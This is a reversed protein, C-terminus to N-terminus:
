RCRPGPSRLAKSPSCTASHPRDSSGPSSEEVVSGPERDDIALAALAWGQKKGTIRAGVQPDAVRRSFFLNVPTEFFSANEIFFPRKEPFFVEFRQNITVQPEDSEVQSFDPNFTLDLTFADKLVMKGDLGARVDTERVYSPREPDLFRAGTLAGYPIFQINRGPSIDRLGRATALQQGMGAVRRTVYPWFSTENNRQIARAFAIGWDQEQVNLFRLSKFPIAMWVVYGFSTLRGDSHWLADFSYDDEQEGDTSV